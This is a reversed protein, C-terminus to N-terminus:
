PGVLADPALGDSEFAEDFAIEAAQMPPTTFQPKEFWQHSPIEQVTMPKSIGLIHTKTLVVCQIRGSQGPAGTKTQSIRETVKSKHTRIREATFVAGCIESGKNRCIMSQHCLLAKLRRVTADQAGM